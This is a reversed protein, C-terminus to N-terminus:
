GFILNFIEEKFFNTLLLMIIAGIIFYIVFSTLIKQISDKESEKDKKKGKHATVRDKITNKANVAFKRLRSKM